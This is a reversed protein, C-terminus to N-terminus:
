EIGLWNLHYWHSALFNLGALSGKSEKGGDRWRALESSVWLLIRGRFLNRRKSNLRIQLKAFATPLLVGVTIGKTHFTGPTFPKSTLSSGYFIDASLAMNKRAQCVGRGIQWVKDCKKRHWVQECNRFLNLRTVIFNTVFNTVISQWLWWSTRWVYIKAFSRRAKSATVSFTKMSAWIWFSGKCNTSLNRLTWEEIGGKRKCSPIFPKMEEQLIPQGNRFRSIGSSSLVVDLNFETRCFTRNVDFNLKQEKFNVKPPKTFGFQLNLEWVGSYWVLATFPVNIEDNM